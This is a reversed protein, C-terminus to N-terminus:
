LLCIFVTLLVLTIKLFLSTFKRNNTFELVFRVFNMPIFAIGIYGLKFILLSAEPSFVMEAATFLILWWAISLTLHLFAKNVASKRNRVYTLFGLLGVLIASFVKLFLLVNM